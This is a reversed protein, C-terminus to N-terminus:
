TGGVVTSTLRLFRYDRTYTHEDGNGSVELPLLLSLLSCLFSNNDKGFFFFFFYKISFFFYLVMCYGHLPVNCVRIWHISHARIVFIFKILLCITILLFFLFFFKINSSLLVHIFHPPLHHGGSIPRWFLSIYRSLQSSANARESKQGLKSAISLWIRRTGAILLEGPGILAMTWLRTVFIAADTNTDICWVYKSWCSCFFFVYTYICSSDFVPM